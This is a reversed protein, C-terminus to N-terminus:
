HLNPKATILSKKPARRFRLIRDNPTIIFWDSSAASVRGLNLILMSSEPWNLLRKVLTRWFYVQSCECVWSQQKEERQPIRLILKWWSHGSRLSLKSAQATRYSEETKVSVILCVGDGWGQLSAQGKTSLYQFHYLYPLSQILTSQTNPLISNREICVDEIFRYNTGESIPWAPQWQCVNSLAM